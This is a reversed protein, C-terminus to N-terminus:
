KKAPVARVATKQTSKEMSFLTMNIYPTAHLIPGYFFNFILENFINKTFFYNTSKCSSNKLLFLTFLCM